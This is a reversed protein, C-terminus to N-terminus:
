RSTEDSQEGLAALDDNIDDGSSEGPLIDGLSAGFSAVTWVVSIRALAVVPENWEVRGWMTMLATATLFSVLAIGVLRRPIFGLIPRNVQVEQPGAWYVLSLIMLLVFITNVLFFVPFVGVQFSLFFDAVDFVGDEVLFPISFFISGVFGEAIDRSTYKQIRDGFVDNLTAQVTQERIHNVEERETDGVVSELDDFERHLAEVLASDTMQRVDVPRDAGAREDFIPRVDDPIGQIPIEPAGDDDALIDGLAAGLSGVTWIVNIRALAQVPSEWGGVRGWVTMLVAAVLFSVTLTMVLRVPVVGFVVATEDRDQGTWQLLAYTMFVVFLTNAILFMPVGAVTFEFLYDGIDFIGDEVLLPSAFIVSGVFAEAADRAGLDRVGSDILGRDHAELLLQKIDRVEDRTEADAAEAALQGLDSFLEQITPAPEGAVGGASATSEAEPPADSV